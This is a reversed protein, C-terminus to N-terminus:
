RPWGLRQTWSIVMAVQSALVLPTATRVSPMLPLPCASIALAPIRTSVSAAAAPCASIVRAAPRAVAIAEGSTVLADAAALILAKMAEVETEEAAEAGSEVSVVAKMTLAELVEMALVSAAKATIPAIAVTGSAAVTKLTGVM